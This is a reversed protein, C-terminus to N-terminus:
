KAEQGTSSTLTVRALRRAGILMNTKLALQDIALWWLHAMPRWSAKTQTMQTDLIPRIRAHELIEGRSLKDWLDQEPRPSYCRLSDFEYDREVARRQSWRDSILGQLRASFHQTKALKELNVESPPTAEFYCVEGGDKLNSLLKELLQGQQGKPDSVYLWFVTDVPGGPQSLEDSNITLSVWDLAGPARLEFNKRAWELGAKDRCLVQLKVRPRRQHILWAVWPSHDGVLQVVADVPLASISRELMHLATRSFTWAVPWLSPNRMLDPQQIGWKRLFEPLVVEKTPEARLWGLGAKWALKRLGAQRDTASTATKELALKATESEVPATEPLAASTEPSDASESLSGPQHAQHFLEDPRFSNPNLM